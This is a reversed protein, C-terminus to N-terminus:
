CRSLSSFEVALGGEEYRSISLKLMDEALYAGRFICRAERLLQAADEDSYRSSIHTLMLLKVKAARATKAADVSTSHFSAQAESRQAELFTAEHILVDAGAAANVLSECPATDGSYVIKLGKRRAGVVEHPHVLRGDPLRVAEGRVLAARLPGMPIGLEEAKRADFRGPLPEEEIVYAFAEIGHNVAVCRVAYGDRRLELGDSAAVLELSYGLERDKQLWTLFEILRQPGLVTLPKARGWSSLSELLGPLGYVHDGHLHSILIMALKNVRLGAALVRYQVGEGCDLLIFDNRVRVLTGPLWRKATPCSAGTGLFTISATGRM